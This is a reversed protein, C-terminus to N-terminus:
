PMSTLLTSVLIKMSPLTNLSKLPRFLRFARLASVNKMSPIVNLISTIVVIFDLWNWADSLYTGKGILLGMAMIKVFAEFTFLCTFIPESYNV